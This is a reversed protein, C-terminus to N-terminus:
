PGLHRSLTPRTVPWMTMTTLRVCENFCGVDLDSERPGFFGASELAQYSVELLFRQQPDM